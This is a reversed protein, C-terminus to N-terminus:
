RPAPGRCRRSEWGARRARRGAPAASWRSDAAPLGKVGAPVSAPAHRGHRIPQAPRLNPAQGQTVLLRQQQGVQHRHQRGQAAYRNGQQQRQQDVFHQQMIAVGRELHHVAEQRGAPFRRGAVDAQHQQQGQQQAAGRQDEVHQLRAQEGPQRLVDDIADAHAQDLAELANGEALVLAQAAAGHGGVQDGVQVGQVLEDALGQAAKQHRHQGQDARRGDEDPHVPLQRQQDEQEVRQHDVGRHQQALADLVQLFQLVVAGRAEGLRQGFGQFRNLFHAGAVALPVEEPTKAATGALHTVIGHGRLPLAIRGAAGTAQQELETDIHEARRRHKGHQEGVQGDALHEGHEAVQPEHDARDLLQEAQLVGEIGRATRQRADVLQQRALVLRLVDALDVRELAAVGDADLYLPQGEGITVFRHQVSEIQGDAGALLHGDDAGRAAALAGQHLQQETQVRRLGAGNAEAAAAQLFDAQIAHAVVDGHHQLM